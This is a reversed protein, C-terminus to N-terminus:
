GWRRRGARRWRRRRRRGSRRAGVALEDALDLHGVGAVLQVVEAPVGAGRHEARVRRVRVDLPAVQDHGAEAGRADVDDVGLGVRGLGLDDLRDLRLLHRRLGAVGVPVGDVASGVADVDAGEARRVAVPRAAIKM